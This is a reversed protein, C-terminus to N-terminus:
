PSPGQGDGHKNAQEAIFRKLQEPEGDVLVVHCHELLLRCRGKSAPVVAIVSLVDVVATEDGDVFGCFIRRQKM